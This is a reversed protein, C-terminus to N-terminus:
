NCSFHHSKAALIIVRFFSRQHKRPTARESRQASEFLMGNMIITTRNDAIEPLNYLLTKALAFSIFKQGTLKLLKRLTNEKLAVIIYQNKENKLRLVLPTTEGLSNGSEGVCVAKGLGRLWLVCFASNPDFICSSATLGDTRCKHICHKNIM